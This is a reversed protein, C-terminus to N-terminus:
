NVGFLQPVELAQSIHLELQHVAPVDGRHCKLGSGVMLKHVLHIISTPTIQPANSGFINQTSVCTTARRGYPKPHNTRHPNGALAIGTMKRAIKQEFPKSKRKRTWGVPLSAARRQRNWTHRIVHVRQVRANNKEDEPIQVDDPSRNCTSRSCLGSTDSRWGRLSRCCAEM